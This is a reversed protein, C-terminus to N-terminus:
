CLIYVADAEVNDLLEEYDAYTKCGYKERVRNLLPLNPDAAGVLQGESLRHLDELNSWIHDHHLGLAVIRFMSNLVPPILSM